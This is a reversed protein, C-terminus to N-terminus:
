TTARATASASWARSCPRSARAPGRQLRRLDDRARVGVRVPHEAPLDQRVHGPRDPGRPIGAAGPGAGGLRGPPPRHGGGPARDAAGGLRGRRAGLAPPAPDVVGAGPSAEPVLPSTWRRSWRRTRPGTSSGPRTSTTTTRGASPRTSSPARRRRPWPRDHAVPRVRRRLERRDALHRHRAADGAAHLRGPRRDAGRLGAVGAPTADPAIDRGCGPGSAPSSTSAASRRGPSAFARSRACPRRPWRRRDRVDFELYAHSSTGLAFIGTQPSAM